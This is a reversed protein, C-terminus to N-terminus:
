TSVPADIFRRCWIEITMMSLITYSADFRGAADARRLALVANADFLGRKGLTAM